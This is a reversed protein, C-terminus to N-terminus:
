PPDGRPPVDATAAAALGPAAPAGREEMLRARRLLLYSSAVAERARLQYVRERWTVFSDFAQLTLADIRADLADRAAPERDLAGGLVDRLVRRLDLIFSVADSAELDQVARIRVLEDLSASARELGGAGALLDVIAETARTVAAPVPAHFPDAALPLRPAAPDGSGLVLNRWRALVEARREVLREPVSM